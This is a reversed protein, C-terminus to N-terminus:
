AGSAQGRLMLFLTGEDGGKPFSEGAHADNGNWVAAPAVDLRRRPELSLAYTFSHRVKEDRFPTEPYLHLALFAPLRGFFLFVPYFM